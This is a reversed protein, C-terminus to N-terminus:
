RGMVFGLDEGVRLPEIQRQATSGEGVRGATGIAWTRGRGPSGYSRLGEVGVSGSTGPGRRHACSSIAGMPPAWATDM